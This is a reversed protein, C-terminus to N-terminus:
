KTKEHTASSYLEAYSHSSRFPLTDLTVRRSVQAHWHGAVHVSLCLFWCWAAPQADGLSHVFPVDHKCFTVLSCLTYVFFLIRDLRSGPNWWIGLELRTKVGIEAWETDKLLAFTVFFLRCPPHFPFSYRMQLWFTKIDCIVFSAPNAAEYPLLCHSVTGGVFGTFHQVRFLCATIFGVNGKKLVAVCKNFGSEPNWDAGSVACSRFYSADLYKPLQLEETDCMEHLYSRRVLARPCSLTGFYSCTFCM